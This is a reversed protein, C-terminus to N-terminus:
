EGHDLLAEQLFVQRKSLVVAKSQAAERLIHLDGRSQWSGHRSVERYPASARRSIAYVRQINLTDDVFGLAVGAGALSRNGCGADAGPRPSARFVSVRDQEKSVNLRNSGDMPLSKRSTM